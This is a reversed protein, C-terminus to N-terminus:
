KIVVIKTVAKESSYEPTSVFVLYVGSHVRNGASDRGDWMLQGNENTDQFVVHGQADTIKVLCNETLGTISIWGEYDPRVPNPYAYVDSLDDALQASESSYIYQGSPTAIFVDNGDPNCAVAYVTNSMLPSNDKTFQRLIEKGDASM